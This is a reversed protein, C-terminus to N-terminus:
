KEDVIFAPVVSGGGATVNLLTVSSLRVLCGGVTDGHFLFPDCDVLRRGVYIDGTADVFPFPEYAIEVREQVIMPTELGQQLAQNWENDSAEWGILVGAGGYDDNPKIVLHDKNRSAWLLLDVHEGKNNVTFREEIVRTWPVHTDITVRELPTFLHANREDSVFAFSAKKHLIKCSFPNAMCIAGDRLAHVIPHDVGYRGLLETSLVRKYIFDVPRGDAYMRGNRYDLQDPTCVVGVIGHRGFYEAFLHFETTTPVGYWDVIAIAPLQTQNGCWEHYINLLADMASRRAMIPQVHYKEQFQRMIPLDLFMEAMVDGYAMGAPSEGNFEVFSLNVRGDEHRAFFSDLRATPITTRYGTPIRVLEEELPTLRVQARLEADALMAESAKSFVNLLIETRESLYDWGRRTHFLPRVVTCLPREGFLLKNQRMRPEMINWSAQGLHDIMALENYQNIIDHITLM